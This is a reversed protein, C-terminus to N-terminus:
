VDEPFSYLKLEGDLFRPQDGGNITQPEAVGGINLIPGCALMNGAVAADFIAWWAVDKAGEALPDFVVAGNNKRIVDHTTVETVWASHGKRSYGSDTLEDLTGALLDASFGLAVYRTTGNPLILEYAGAAIAM